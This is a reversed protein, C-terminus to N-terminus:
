PIAMKGKPEYPVRQQPYMPNPTGTSAHPFGAGATSPPVTIVHQQPQGAGGGGFRAGAAPVLEQTGGRPPYTNVDRKAANRIRQQIRSDEERYHKGQACCSGAWCCACVM